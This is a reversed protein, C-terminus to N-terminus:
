GRCRRSAIRALVLDSVLALPVLPWWRVPERARATLSRGLLMALLLAVLVPLLLTAV